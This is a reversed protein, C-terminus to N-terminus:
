RPDQRIVVTDGARTNFVLLAGRMPRPKGRSRRLIVQADDGWPNRLRCAGGRRSEVEVPGIRGNRISSSVMFGGRCLLCFDGDWEAPWAPFVRIVPEAAPGPGVSQCLALQLAEAARGLRQADLAQFGEALSLRNRLIVGRPDRLMQNPILLKVADARGLCAAAIGLHHFQWGGGDAPVGDPYFAAHALALKQADPTERTVLDFFVVPNLGAYCTRGDPLRRTPIPALNALFERWLPRLGADLGLLESARIAVPLIGHMATMEEVTDTSDWDAEHNNV